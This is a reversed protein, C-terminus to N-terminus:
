LPFNVRLEGLGEISATVPVGREIFPLGNLSGTIVYQGPKLGGCHDGLQRVIGLLTKFADGAPVPAPGDLVTEDGFVLKANASSMDLDAWDALPTGVVLGGNVQNDALKQFPSAEKLNEFRTDCVEIVAVPSVRQRVLEEFAPDVPDPLAENIHFGIELEIGISDIESRSFEAPSPKISRSYIPAAIQEEVDKKRATKFGGVPGLKETVLTQTRYATENDAPFGDLEEETIRPAGQRVALLRKALAEPTRFTKPM